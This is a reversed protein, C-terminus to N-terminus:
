AEQDLRYALVDNQCQLILQLLVMQVPTLSVLASLSCMVFMLRNEGKM